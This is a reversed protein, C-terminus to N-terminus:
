LAPLDFMSHLIKCSCLFSFRLSQSSHSVLLLVWRLQLKTYKTKLTQIQVLKWYSKHLKRPDQFLPCFYPIIELLIRNKFDDKCSEAKGLHRM